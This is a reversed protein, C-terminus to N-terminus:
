VIYVEDRAVEANSKALDFSYGAKLGEAFREHYAIEAACHRKYAESKDVIATIESLDVLIGEPTNGDEPVVCIPGEVFVYKVTWKGNCGTINVVDGANLDNHTFKEM